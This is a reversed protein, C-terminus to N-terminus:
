MGYGVGITYIPQFGSETNENIGILYSPGAFLDIAFREKFTYQFGGTAGVQFGTSRGTNGPNVSNFGAQFSQFGIVPRLFLGIPADKWKTLLYRRYAGQINIDVYGSGGFPSSGFGLRLTADVSSEKNLVVELYVDPDGYKIFNYLNLKFISKQAFSGTFCATLLFLSIILKNM